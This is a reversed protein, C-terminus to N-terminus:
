DPLIGPGIGLGDGVANGVLGSGVAKGITGGDGFVVGAGVLKGTM